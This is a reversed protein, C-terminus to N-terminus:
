DTVGIMGQLLKGKTAATLPATPRPLAGRETSYIYPLRLVWYAAGTLKVPCDGGPIFIPGGNIPQVQM